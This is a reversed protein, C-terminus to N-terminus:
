PSVGAQEDLKIKGLKEEVATRLQNPDPTHLLKGESNFRFLEPVLDFEEKALRIYNDPRAKATTKRYYCDQEPYYRCIHPREPQDYISCRNDKLHSCRTKVMLAWGRDSVVIQTGPFNLCYRIYDIDKFQTPTKFPVSLHTCCWSSCNACVNRYQELSLIQQDPAPNQGERWILWNAYPADMVPEAEQLMKKPTYEIQAMFSCLNEWQPYQICNQSDFNLAPVLEQWRQSNMWILGPKPHQKDAMNPKFFCAYPSYNVCVLPQEPQNHIQCGSEASLHRCQSRLYVSCQWQSNLSTEINSFNSFYLAQDLDKANRLSFVYIELHSCCPATSCSMCPSTM